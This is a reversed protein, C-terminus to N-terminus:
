VLLAEAGTIRAIRAATSATDAAWVTIGSFAKAKEAIMQDSYHRSVYEINIAEAPGGDPPVVALVADPYMALIEGGRRRGLRRVRSRWSSSPPTKGM